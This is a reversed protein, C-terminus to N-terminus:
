EGLSSADSSREKAVRGARKYAAVAHAIARM